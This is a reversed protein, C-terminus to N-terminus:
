PTGSQNEMSGTRGHGASTTEDSGTLNLVVHKGPAKTGVPVPAGGDQRHVTSACGAMLLVLSLSCAIRGHYM